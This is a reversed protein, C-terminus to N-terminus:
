QYRFLKHVLYNEPRTVFLILVNFTLHHIIIQQINLLISLTSLTSDLFSNVQKHVIKINPPQPPCLSTIGQERPSRYSINHNYPINSYKRPINTSTNLLTESSVNLNSTSSSPYSNNHQNPYALPTQLITGYKVEIPNISVCLINQIPTHQNKYSHIPLSKTSHPNIREKPAHLKNTRNKIKNKSIVLNIQNNDHYSYNNNSKNTTSKTLSNIQNYIELSIHKKWETTFINIDKNLVNTSNYLSNSWTYWQSGRRLLPTMPWARCIIIGVERLIRIVLTELLPYVGTFLIM